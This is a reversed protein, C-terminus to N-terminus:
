KSTAKAEGDDSDDELEQKGEADKGEDGDAGKGEDIAGDQDNDEEKGENTKGEDKDDDDVDKGETQAPVPAKRRAPKVVEPVVLGRAPLPIGDVFKDFMAVEQPPTLVFKASLAHVAVSGNADIIAVFPQRALRTMRSVSFNTVPAGSISVSEVVIPDEGDRLLDWIQLNHSVTVAKGDTQKLEELVFFVSPRTPSWLVRKVCSLGKGTVKRMFAPWKMLPATHESHFLMLDGNACGVLFLNEHFPSFEMTTINSSGFLPSQFTTPAKPKDFRAKRRITGDIGGIMFSGADNPHFLLTTAKPGVATAFDQDTINATRILKLKSGIGLGLDTESGSPNGKSLEVMSWIITQGRNDLSAMQFSIKSLDRGEVRAIGKGSSAKGGGALTVIQIVKSHHNQDKLCDTLYSPRRVGGIIGAKRSKITVHYSNGM